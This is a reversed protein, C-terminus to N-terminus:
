PQGCLVIRRSRGEIAIVEAVQDPELLQQAAAIAAADDSFEASRGGVVDDSQDLVLIRYTGV